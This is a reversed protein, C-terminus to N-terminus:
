IKKKIPTLFAHSDTHSYPEHLDSIILIKSM